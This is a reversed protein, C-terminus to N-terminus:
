EGESPGRVCVCVFVCVCLERDCVYSRVSARIERVDLCVRETHSLCQRVWVGVWRGVWLEDAHTTCMVATPREQDPTLM